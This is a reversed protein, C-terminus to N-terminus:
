TGALFANIEAAVATPQDLMTLAYAHPIQRLRACDRFDSVGQARLMSVLGFL